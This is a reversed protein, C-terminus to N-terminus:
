RSLIEASRTRSTSGATRSSNRTFVAVSFDEGWGQALGFLAVRAPLLSNAPFPKRGASRAPGLDACLTGLDRWMYRGKAPYLNFPSTDWGQRRSSRGSCSL